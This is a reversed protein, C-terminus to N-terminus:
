LSDSDKCFFYDPTVDLIELLAILRFVPIANVGAEYKQVQYMSIELKKSLQKQTLVLHKRRMRLKKGIEINVPHVM